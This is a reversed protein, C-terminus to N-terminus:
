PIHRKLYILLEAPTPRQGKRPVAQWFKQVGPDPNAMAVAIAIEIENIVETVPVGSEKSVQEFLQQSNM